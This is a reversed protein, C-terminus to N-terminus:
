NLRIEAANRSLWRAASEGQKGYTGAKKRDSEEGYFMRASNAEGM